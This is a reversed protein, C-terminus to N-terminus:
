RTAVGFGEIRVPRGTSTVVIQITTTRPAAFSAIPIVQKAQFVPSALSIRRLLTRGAMIKVTGHNVGRGAVLALKRARLVGISLTAGRITSLSYSGLYSGSSTRLQWGRGHRFATNNLPVTWTRRAPSTDQNGLPDIAAVSFMHSRQTLGNLALSNPLCSRVAGDFLCTFTSGPETSTYGLATSTSLLWSGDRPGSTIATEPATLDITWTHEAPTPDVNGVLDRGRVLFRYAGDVLGTYNASTACPRWPHGSPGELACEFAVANGISSFTFSASRGSVSATNLTTEPPTTDVTWCPRLTFAGSGNGAVNDNVRAVLNRAVPSNNIFTRTVDGVYSYGTGEVGALLSFVNAGPLPFDSGAPTNPWGEPGNTGTFIVGAWISGGPEVTLAEGPAMLRVNVGTSNEPVAVPNGCATIDTPQFHGAAAANGVTTLAPAMGAAMALVAIAGRLRNHGGTGPSSRKHRM